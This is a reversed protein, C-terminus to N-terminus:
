ERDLEDLEELRQLARAAVDAHGSDIALQYAALADAVDGQEELLVGLTVATM